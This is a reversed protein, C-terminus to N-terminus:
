NGYSFNHFDMKNFFDQWYEFTDLDDPTGWCIYHDIEFVKAKYGLALLDNICEDVYFENNIRRNEKIMHEAAEVFVRGKKFWFAGVVAHDNIPNNSIAKKVSMHKINNQEDAEVWGYQNPKSCVTANNRYSFVIADTDNKLAKFAQKDYIMGNDSAGIILEEDNNILDKALLCTCAQGETLANVSICQSNPFYQKLVKDIQYENIHFDRCIFIETDAEPLDNAARVVMPLGLVNILPKPVTYGKSSFRSGAGAMPILKIM